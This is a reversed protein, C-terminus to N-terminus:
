AVHSSAPCPCCNGQLCAATSPAPQVLRMTELPDDKGRCQKHLKSCYSSSITTQPNKKGKQNRFVDAYRFKKIKKLPGLNMNPESTKLSKQLEMKLKVRWLGM